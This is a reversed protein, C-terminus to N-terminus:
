ALQSHELPRQRHMLLWQAHEELCANGLEHLAERRRADDDAADFLGRVREFIRAMFRYQKILEKDAKKFSYAERVGAILPLLGMLMLLYPQAGAPIYKGAVLLLLAIGLGTWLALMGVKRTAAYHHERQRVKRLYYGLQASPPSRHGIWDEGVWDLWARDPTQTRDRRLSAGRMVHRIWGLEVDQKQLFSDHAFAISDTPVVDALHWYLQVRLGEALARYDLYKRHWDRRDGIRYVVFGVAFLGLFVAIFGNSENLESYCMFTLGMLVALGHTLRLSQEVRRQFHMALWDVRRYLADLHLASSTLAAPSKAPLLSTAETAIVAAYKAADRNFEEMQEFMARYDSPIPGIGPQAVETTMWREDGPLLDGIPGGGDRDRSCVIHYVLDNEDDALLNPMPAHRDLMPMEEYLHFHVVEATGGIATGPRGDWLALLLQCHSSIFVGLQAYQRIRAPDTVALDAARIDILLGLERVEAQALLARFRALGEPTQFDREYEALPMPLPAVVDIGMAMAEEAVLQDGGEALASILQLPLLPFEAQLRRFFRRVAARLSSEESPLLDRHATLGITLRAKATTTADMVQGSEHVRLPQCSM